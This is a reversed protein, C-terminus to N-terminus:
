TRPPRHSCNTGDLEEIGAHGIAATFKGLADVQRDAEIRRDARALEIRSQRVGVQQIV